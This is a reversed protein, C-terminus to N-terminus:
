NQCIHLPQTNLHSNDSKINNRQQKRQKHKLKERQSGSTFCNTGSKWMTDPSEASSTVAVVQQKRVGVSMPVGRSLHEAEANSIITWHHECSHAAPINQFIFLDGAVYNDGSLVDHNKKNSQNNKLCSICLFSVPSDHFKSPTTTKLETYM